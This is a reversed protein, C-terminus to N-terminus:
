KDKSRNRKASDAAMNENLQSTFSEDSVGEKRFVRLLSLGVQRFLDKVYGGFGPSEQPEEQGNTEQAARKREEEAKRQDIVDAPIPAKDIFKLEQATTGMLYYKGNFEVVMITKEKDVVIRDAVSVLHGLKNKTFATGGAKPKRMGRRLARSAIYKTIFYAAVLILVLYVILILINQVGIETALQTEASAPLPSEVM